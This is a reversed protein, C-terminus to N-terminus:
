TSQRTNLVLLLTFPFESLWESVECFFCHHELTYLAILTWVSTLYTVFITVPPSLPWCRCLQSHLCVTTTVATLVCSLLSTFSHTTHTTSSVSLSKLHRHCKWNTLLHHHTISCGSTIYKNQIHVHVTHCIHFLKRIIKVKICIFCFVWLVACKM